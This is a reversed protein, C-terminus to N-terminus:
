PKLSKKNVRAAENMCGPLEFDERVGVPAGPSNQLHGSTGGVGAINMAVNLLNM